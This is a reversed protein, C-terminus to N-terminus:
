VHARGIQRSLITERHLSQLDQARSQQDQTYADQRQRAAAPGLRRLDVMWPESGADGYLVNAEKGCGQLALHRVPHEQGCFEDGALLQGDDIQQMTVAASEAFPESTAWYAARPSIRTM